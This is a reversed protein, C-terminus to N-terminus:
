RIYQKALSHPPTRSGAGALVETAPRGVGCADWFDCSDRQDFVYDGPICSRRFRSDQFLYDPKPHQTRPCVLLVSGSPGTPHDQLDVLTWSLLPFSSSSSTLTRNTQLWQRPRQSWRGLQVLSPSSSVTGQRSCHACKTGLPVRRRETTSISLDASAGTYAGRITYHGGKRASGDCCGHGTWGPRREDGARHLSFLWSSREGM